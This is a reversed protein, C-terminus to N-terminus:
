PFLCNIFGEIDLADISGDLNVDGASGIDGRNGCCPDDGNFLLGIFPEIDLANIAGDCNMDCPVCEEEPTISINDYALTNGLVSGGAFFRHHDPNAGARIFRDVPEHVFVDGTTLDTLRVELVQDTDLSFTTSWRYWHDVALNQFNPDPVQETVQAGAGTWWVYDANWADATTPNVWRALQILSFVGPVGENISLSGINQASPLTGIFTAAIDTAITWTGTPTFNSLRQARGFTGGAQGIAAIFQTGGSPNAPLGLGNAAYTYVLFDTDNPPGNPLFYGDQGTLVTGGPSATLADFSSGYQASAISCALLVCSLCVARKWM